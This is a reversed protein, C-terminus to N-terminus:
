GQLRADRSQLKSECGDRLLKPERGASSGAPTRDGSEEHIQQM